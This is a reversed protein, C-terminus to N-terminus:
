DSVRRVDGDCPDQETLRQVVGRGTQPDSCVGVQGREHVFERKKVPAKPKPRLEFLPCGGSTCAAVQERWKGGGGIPDYLCEKCKANVASRLSAM